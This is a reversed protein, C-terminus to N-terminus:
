IMNANVDMSIINRDKYKAYHDQFTLEDIFEYVNGNIM